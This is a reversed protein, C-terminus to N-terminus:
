GAPPENRLTINVQGSGWALGPKLKPQPSEEGPPEGEPGTQPTEAAPPQSEGIPVDVDTPANFLTM